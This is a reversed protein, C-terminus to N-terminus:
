GRDATRALEMSWSLPGKAHLPLCGVSVAGREASIKKASANRQIPTRAMGCSHSPCTSIIKPWRDHDSALWGGTPETSRGRM